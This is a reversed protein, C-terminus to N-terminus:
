KKPLDATSAPVLTSKGADAPAPAAQTTTSPTPAAPATAPTQEPAAPQAPPLGKAQLIAWHWEEDAALPRDLVERFVASAYPPATGHIRYVMTTDQRKHDASEPATPVLKAPAILFTASSPLQKHVITLGVTIERVDWASGNLVSIELTDGVLSAPGELKAVDDDPLREPHPANALSDTGGGNFSLACTINPSQFNILQPAPKLAVPKPALWKRTEGQEMVQPLNDNDIVKQSPAQSKRFSRAVDGLPLDDSQATAM